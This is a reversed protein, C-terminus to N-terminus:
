CVSGHHLHGSNEKIFFTKWSPIQKIKLDLHTLFQCSNSVSTKNKRTKIWINEVIMQSNM